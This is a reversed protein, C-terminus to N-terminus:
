SIKLSQFLFLAFFAAIALMIRLPSLLPVEVRTELHQDWLCLGTTTLRFFSFVMGVVIFPFQYFGVGLVYVYFSRGISRLFPIKGGGARQLRIGFLAKGPTSGTLHVLVAEVFHWGILALFLTRAFVMAEPKQLSELYRSFADSFAEGPQPQPISIDSLLFVAVSVATYDFMRAWFRVM